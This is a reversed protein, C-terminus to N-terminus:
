REAKWFGPYHTVFGSANVELTAAYGVSPSEYWYTEDTRREYRQPRLQVKGEAPTLWAVPVDAGAGEALELRRIHLLNTAPTFGLDLDLCTELGWVMLGDITWAGTNMQAIRHDIAREGIWGRVHGRQGHFHADCTVAYSLQAVMGDHVFVATGELRWGHSIRELRCADHGPTDLRQWLISAEVM